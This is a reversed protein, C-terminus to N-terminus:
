KNKHKLSLTRQKRAKGILKSKRWRAYFRFAFFVLGFAILAIIAAWYWNALLILFPIVIAAVAIYKLIKFPKEIKAKLERDILTTGQIGNNGAGDMFIHHQEGDYQFALMWVPYFMLIAEGTPNSTMESKVNDVEASQIKKRILSNLNSEGWKSWMNQEDRNRTLFFRGNLDDIQFQQIGDDRYNLTCVYEALESCTEVGECALIVMAYEGKSVGSQPRANKADAVSSWSCEYQGKYLYVPLYFGLVGKFSIYGSIDVPAFDQSALMNRASMEFDGVSTNFPVIQEPMPTEKTMNATICYEVGCFPCITECSLPSVSNLAGHCKPCEVQYFDFSKM